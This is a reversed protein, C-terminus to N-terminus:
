IGMRTEEPFYGHARRRVAIAHLETLAEDRSTLREIKMGGRRSGKGGWVRVVQWEGWLDQQVHTEYYRSPTEWRAAKWDTLVYPM